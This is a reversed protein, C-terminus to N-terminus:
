PAWDPSRFDMVVSRTGANPGAHYKGTGAIDPKLPRLGDGHVPAEVKIVEAGLDRLLYSALPGPIHGSFDVVRFAQEPPTEHNASTTAMDDGIPRKKNGPM